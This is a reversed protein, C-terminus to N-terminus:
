RTSKYYQDFWAYSEKSIEKIAEQLKAFDKGKTMVCMLYPHDPYYVVGCDHLQHEGTQPITTVGFKHAVTFGAPVGAVIGDKYQAKALLTLAEESYKHSLYTSGYLVRFVMAYNDVTMFNLSGEKQKVPSPLSLDTFIAQFADLTQPDFNDVLTDLADNDSYRIMQEIVQRITYARGHVLHPIAEGPTDQEALGSAKFTIYSNLLGPNDTVDAEKLYAMMVFVKLLSAPAYTTTGNIDFWRASRMSRIYVSISDAERTNIKADILKSLQSRLPAFEPFAEPSGVDCALLPSIYTFAAGSQRLLGGKYLAPSAQHLQWGIAVGALLSAGVLLTPRWYAQLM